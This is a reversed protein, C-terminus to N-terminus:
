EAAAEPASYVGVTCGDGATALFDGIPADGSTGFRSPDWPVLGLAARKADIHELARRLIEHYDAVFELKGGVKTEWVESIIRTVERSAGVPSGVGFLVYAGSAVFYTGISIAKESMWEPCIGVAPLDVIDDGLGGESAMQTLVTLIRSNDVCSGLHLVPAIGIAECVERLGPGAAAMIEPTLYGHKGAGIAACGTMVVLVDQAIFEKVLAITAEDHTVRANNCGVIGVAGRIRGAVVADNLPRFSARYRGGQMYNLYEHSFGAVIPSSIPPISTAGRNPFNDIALRVIAKADEFATHEDFQMHTAGPIRAKPSTTILKTHYHESLPALAQMICQVDVIMAEVAGTIVALEQQLYNGAPPIGHRM